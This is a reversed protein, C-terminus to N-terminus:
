NATSTSANKILKDMLDDYAKKIADDNFKINEKERIEVLAQYHLSADANLKDTALTEKIKQESEELSPKKKQNVKLIIHYGYQTKVPTKTYENKKLNKVANVFDTDMEDSSFYGLDGGNEASGTDESYKKALSAFDKGEELKKIIDKAKKLAKEEAEAKEESTADEKANSKILIHSAKIDGIINDNYYDKIEKKTLTSKVYDEVALNRKYELSLVEKLEEENNVGFYQNIASTFTEDTSYYSKMQNIQNEIAKKEQDDTKYKEDFLKHDIMDILKSINESKIESYYQDASINFEKLSVVKEEGNKLKAEKGCGSTLLSIISIFTITLLINKKKM